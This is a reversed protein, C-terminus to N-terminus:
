GVPRDTTTSQPDTEPMYSLDTHFMTAGQQSLMVHLQGRHHTQHNFFQMVLVARNKTDTQQAAGSNWVASGKLWDETLEDTWNQIKRDSLRHAQKLEHWDQYLNVSTRVTTVEPLPAETLCTMLMRDDWLMHSLTNHISGFCMGLDQRREAETLEEAKAYIQDNQWCAYRAMRQAFGPTIM